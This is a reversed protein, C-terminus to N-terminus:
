WANLKKKELKNEPSIEDPGLPAVLVDNLTQAYTDKTNKL